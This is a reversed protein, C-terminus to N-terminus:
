NEYKICYLIQGDRLDPIVFTNVGDGGFYNYSEFTEKIFHALHPYDAINYEAGDCVLYHEPVHPRLFPTIVGIPSSATHNTEKSVEPQETITSKM